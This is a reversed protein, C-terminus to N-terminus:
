NVSLNFACKTNVWLFEAEIWHLSYFIDGKKYVAILLSKGRKHPIMLNLNFSDDIIRGTSLKIQKMYLIYEIEM